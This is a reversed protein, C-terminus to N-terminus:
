STKENPKIQYPLASRRGRGAGRWGPGPWNLEQYSLVRAGKPSMMTVVTLTHRLVPLYCDPIVMIRARRHM